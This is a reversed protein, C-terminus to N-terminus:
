NKWIKEGAKMKQIIRVKDKYKQPSKGKNIRHLIEEEKNIAEGKKGLKYLINAYTNIWDVNGPSLDIARKSWLLAEQLRQKDSVENFFTEALYNLRWGVSNKFSNKVLARMIKLNEWFLTSDIQGSLIAKEFQQINSKDRQIIQANTIKLLENNGMNVAHRYYNATDKITKYYEMYIEDKFYFPTYFGKMNLCIIDQSFSNFATIVDSLLNENRNWRAENLSNRIAMEIIYNVRIPGMAKEFTIRNQLLNSYALSIVSLNEEEKEYLGIVSPGTRQTGPLLKLYEDFLHPNSLGLSDRKKIYKLLFSPDNKNGEYEQEWINLPKSDNMKVLAKKSEAIFRDAKMSGVMRHFQSGDPRIFLFTPLEFVEYKKSLVIGEGKEGDVKYCLFDSNYVKGVEDLPIINKSMWRCAGCWSTSVDLFIPKNSQQAKQLLEAWTGDEFKIGQSFGMLPLLCSFILALIKNM